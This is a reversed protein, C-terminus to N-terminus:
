FLELQQPIKPTGTQEVGWYHKISSFQKDTITLISIRGKKPLYKEVKKIHAEVSEISACHRIYVSFQLMEFGDKLLHKRFNSYAKRELKTNTPLDFLTFIWMIRYASLRM